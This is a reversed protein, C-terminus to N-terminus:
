PFASQTQSFIAGKRYCWKVVVSTSVNTGQHAKAKSPNTANIKTTAAKLTHLMHNGTIPRMMPAMTPKATPKTIENSIKAFHSLQLGPRPSYVSTLQFGIGVLDRPLALPRLAFAAYAPNACVRFV